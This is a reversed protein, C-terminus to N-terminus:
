CVLHHMIGDRGVGLLFNNAHFTVQLFVQRNRAFERNRAIRLVGAALVRQLGARWGTGWCGSAFWPQCVGESGCGGSLLTDGRAGYELCWHSRPQLRGAELVTGFM